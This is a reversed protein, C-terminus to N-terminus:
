KDKEEPERDRAQAHRQAGLLAGSALHCAAREGNNRRRTDFRERELQEFCLVRERAGNAEVHEWLARREVQIADHRDVVYARWGQNRSRDAREDADLHPWTRDITDDVEKPVSLGIHSPFSGARELQPTRGIAARAERLAVERPSARRVHELDRKPWAQM